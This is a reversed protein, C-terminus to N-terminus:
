HGGQPYTQTSPGQLPEPILDGHWMYIGSGPMWEEWGYPPLETSGPSYIKAGPFDSRPAWAGTGPGLSIYPDPNGHGDYRTAPGPLQPDQRVLGPLEDSRVFNGSKDGIEIWPPSDPYNPPGMGERGAIYPMHRQDGPKWTQSDLPAAPPSQKDHDTLSDTPLHATADHVHRAARQYDTATQRVIQTVDAIRQQGAQLLAAQGQATDGFRGLTAKDQQWAAQVADLRTHAQQSLQNATALTTSVAQHATRVQNRDTDLRSTTAAAHTSSQGEWSPPLSDALDGASTNPTTIAPPSATGLLQRAQELLADVPHM